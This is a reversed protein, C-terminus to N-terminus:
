KGILEDYLIDFAEDTGKEVARGFFGVHKKSHVTGYELFKAVFHTIRIKGEIVYNRMSVSSKISKKTVGSHVPTDKEVQKKIPKLARSMAKKEEEPTSQMDSLMRELEDFGNFEIGSKAM